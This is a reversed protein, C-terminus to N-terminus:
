LGLAELKEADWQGTKSDFLGFDDGIFEWYGWAIRNNELRTRSYRIWRLADAHGAFNTVGM